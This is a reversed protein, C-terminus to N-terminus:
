GPNATIFIPHVIRDGAHLGMRSATGGNLELVARSPSPSSIISLSQPIAREAIGLVRGDEAIFVMDLPILTNKMWMSVSQPHGFDFLMGAEAGLKSRGMLGQQLQDNTSAMEVEFDHRTGDSLVIELHSHGFNVPMQAAANGAVLALLIILTARITAM